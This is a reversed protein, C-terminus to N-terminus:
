AGRQDDLYDGVEATINAALDGATLQRWLYRRRPKGSTTRAITGQEVQLVRLTVREGALTRVVRLVQEPPLKLRECLLAVTPAGRDTGLLVTVRNKPAGAAATVASEIDEAFLTRGHVKMSDGMRGVLYLDAGCRFGADGTHYWDDDFQTTETPEGVIARTVSPGSIAVEGLVNDGVPTGEPDLIRVQASDLPSGCSSLWTHTGDPEPAHGNDLTASGLIRVAGGLRLSTPDVALATPVADTRLGTVALAAEALGYAPLLTKPDFGHPALLETFRRLVDFEVREAGIILHRWSAFDMGALAEPAVKRLIWDLGFNPTATSWVGDRGFCELWRLPRAIFQVPQLLRLDFQHVLAPLLLGVLGMDHHLPLWSAATLDGSVDLWSTILRQQAEVNAGTLLVGRPARTSGSTFQLLAFEASVPRIETPVPASADIALVPADLGAATLAAKVGVHFREEAVVVDPRAAGLIRGLYGAYDGSITHTPPAVPAVTAGVLLTACFAAIGAESTNMVVCVRGDRRAGAAVIQEAGRLCLEALEAYSVFRWGDADDAFRVGRDKRPESVWEILRSSNLSM